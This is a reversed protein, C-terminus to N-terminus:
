HAQRELYRTFVRGENGDLNLQYLRFTVAINKPMWQETYSYMYKMGARKMVEGSRPNNVDHTATVYSFGDERLKGIVATVAESMLGRGQYEKMLGYGLDAAGDPDSFTICGVPRSEDEKLCLAFCYDGELHQHLFDEAEAPCALPFWPLFRNLERDSFIAYICEIDDFTFPRLVLRETIIRNM